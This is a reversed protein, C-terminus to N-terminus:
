ATSGVRMEELRMIDCSRERTLRFARGRVRSFRAAADQRAMVLARIRVWRSSPSWYYPHAYRPDAWSRGGLRTSPAVPQKRSIMERLLGADLIPTCSWGLGAWLERCTAPEAALFTGASDSSAKAAGSDGRAQDCASLVRALTWRSSMVELTAPLRGRDAPDPCLSM